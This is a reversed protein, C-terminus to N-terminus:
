TATDCPWRQPPSLKHGKAKVVQSFLLPPSQVTRFGSVQQLKVSSSLLQVQTWLIAQYKTIDDQLHPTAPEIEAVCGSHGNLAMQGRPHEQALCQMGRCMPTLEICHWHLMFLFSSTIFEVGQKLMSLNTLPISEQCTHEFVSIMTDTTIIESDGSCANNGLTRKVHYEPATCFGQGIFWVAHNLFNKM